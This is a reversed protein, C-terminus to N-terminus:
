GGKANSKDPKIVLHDFSPKPAPNTGTAEPHKLILAIEEMPTQVRVRAIQKGRIVVYNRPYWEAM